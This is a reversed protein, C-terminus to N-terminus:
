RKTLSKEKWIVMELLREISSSFGGVILIMGIYFEKINLALLSNRFLIIGLLGAIIGPIIIAYDLTKLSNKIVPKNKPKREKPKPNEKNKKQTRKATKEERVINENDFGLLYSFMGIITNELTVSKKPYLVLALVFVFILIGVLQFGIKDTGYFKYAILGGGLLYFINRMTLIPNSGLKEDLFSIEDLILADRLRAM